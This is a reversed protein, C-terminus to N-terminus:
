DLNNLLKKAEVHHDANPTNALIKLKNKAQKFQQKKCYVLATYWIAHDRYFSENLALISSFTTLAKEWEQLEIYCIGKGLLIKPDVQNEKSLKNLAILADSYQQNRYLFQAQFIAENKLQDTTRTQFSLPYPKYYSTFVTNPTPRLYNNYFLISFVILLISCAIGVLYLPIPSKKPQNLMEQHISKLRSKLLQNGYSQINQAIEQHVLFDKKLQQNESIKQNFDTKKNESLRNFLYDDFEEQKRTNM